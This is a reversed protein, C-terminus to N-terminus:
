ELLTVKRLPSGSSGFDDRVTFTANGHFTLANVVFATYQTANGSGSGGTYTFQAAKMYIIGNLNVAAGSSMSADNNSTRDQYFLIERWTGSTPANLTVQQTQQINLQGKTGTIFFTVGSGSNDIIVGADNVKFVDRIVYLGEAFTLHGPSQVTIKDYTGPQLTVTGGPFNYDGYVTGTPNTPTGLYALPDPVPPVGTIPTPSLAGPGNGTYYNGTVAIGSNAQMLSNTGGVNIAALDSSNVMVSGDISVQAGGSVELAHQLNNVGQKVGFVVVNSAADSSLGAIASVTLMKSAFASSLVAAFFTSKTQSITVKVVNPDSTYPAPSKTVTIPLTSADYSFGNLAADARAVTELLTQSASPTRQLEFGASLAASDAAAQMKRQYEFLYGLDLVLATVGLVVPLVLVTVILIQGRRSRLRENFSPM